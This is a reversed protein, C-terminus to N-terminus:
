LVKNLEDQIAELVATELERCRLHESTIRGSHELAAKLTKIELGM